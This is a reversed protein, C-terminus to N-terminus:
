KKTEENTDSKSVNAFEEDKRFLYGALFSLSVLLIVAIVFFLQEEKPIYNIIFNM